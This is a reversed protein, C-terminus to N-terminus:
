GTETALEIRNRGNKKARYMAADARHLAMEATEGACWGAVGVSITLPIPPHGQAPVPSGEVAARLRSAIAQAEVLGADPLFVAFEEGGLRGLIDENRICTEAVGVFHRLADDGTKHGWTDNISKFHDLDILLISLPARMREAHSICKNLLTLFSRRNFVSTLADRDAIHRLAVTVQENALMVVGFALLVIAVISEVVIFQSVILANQADFLGDNGPALLWPRVLLFLGHAACIAAFLHRAPYDRRSERTLLRACLLFISGGVLSTLAFRAGPNPQVLTFYGSVVAVCSAAVLLYRWPLRPLGVYARTGALNLYAMLFVSVQAILVAAIEPIANRLVLSGCFIFGFLYSLAWAGLGAVQRNFRWAATLMLTMILMLIAALALLTPSHV